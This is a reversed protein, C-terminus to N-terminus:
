CFSSPVSGYWPCVVLLFNTFKAFKGDNIRREGWTGLEGERRQGEALPIFQRIRMRCGLRAFHSSPADNNNKKMTYYNDLLKFGLPSECLLNDYSPTRWVGRVGQTDWGMLGSRQRTERASDLLQCFTISIFTAALSCSVRTFCLFYLLYCHLSSSSYQPYNEYEKKM